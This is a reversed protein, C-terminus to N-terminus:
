ASGPDEVDVIYQRQVRQKREPKKLEERGQKQEARARPACSNGSWNTVLNSNSALTKRCPAFAPRRVRSGSAVDDPSRAALYRFWRGDTAGAYFKSSM